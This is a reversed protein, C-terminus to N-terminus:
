AAIPRPAEADLWRLVNTYSKTIWKMAAAREGLLSSCRALQYPICWEDPFKDVVPVRLHHKDSRNVGHFNESAGSRPFGFAGTGKRSPAVVVM